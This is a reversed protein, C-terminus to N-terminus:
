IGCKYYIMSVKSVLIGKRTQPYGYASLQGPKVHSIVGHSPKSLCPLAVCCLLCVFCCLVVSLCPSVVCCFSLM